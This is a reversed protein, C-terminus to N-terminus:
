GHTGEFFNLWIPSATKDALAFIFVYIFLYIHLSCLAKDYLNNM